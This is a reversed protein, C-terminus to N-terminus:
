PQDTYTAYLLKQKTGQTDQIYRADRRATALASRFAETHQYVTMHVEDAQQGTRHMRGLLQEFVAGSSPPSLLLQNSWKQLNKGTGHVRISCAIIPQKPDPEPRASGSGYTPINAQELMAQVGLSEYWIILPEKTSKVTEYAWALADEVLFTDLWVPKTPPEGRSKYQQWVAWADYLEPDSSHTIRGQSLANSILLMSDQGERNKSLYRRVQANWTSRANIYAYDPGREGWDWVTYFGKSLQRSVRHYSLADAIEMGDPTTWTSALKALAMSVSDPIPTSRQHIILSAGVSGQRSAVVGPTTTLRYRFVKRFNEQDLPVRHGAIQHFFTAAKGWDLKNPQGNADLCASWSEQMLFDFPIPSNNGLCWEMIHAYDRLSRNTLTGSLACFRTDPNEAMFRAVRKTRTSSRHRLYHAEDAIILDPQYTKLTYAGSAVSLKSYSLVQMNDAVLFHQSFEEHMEHYQEVMQPPLLLLPRQSGYIRPLLDSILTKGNGVSVMGFLGGAIYAEYLAQSQIPFLSFKGGALRYKNTLDPARLNFKPLGLIRKIDGQSTPQRRAADLKRIIAKVTMSIQPPYHPFRTGAWCHCHTYSVAVGM